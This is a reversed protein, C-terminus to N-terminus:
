LPTFDMMETQLAVHGDRWNETEEERAFSLCLSHNVKKRPQKMQVLISIILLVLVIGSSVGIVTGHTKTIQHFLGKSRKEPPLFIYSFKLFYFFYYTWFYIFQTIVEFCALIFGLWIYDVWKPFAPLFSIIVKATTKMGHTSVTRFGMACWPTTLVCTATASSHTAQAPPQLSFVVSIISNLFFYFSLPQRVTSLFSSDVTSLVQLKTSPLLLLVIIVIFSRWEPQLYRFLRM